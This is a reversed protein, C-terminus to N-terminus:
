DEHRRRERLLARHQEILPLLTRAADERDLAHRYEFAFRDPKLATVVGDAGSAYVAADCWGLLDPLDTAGLHSARVDRVQPAFRHVGALFTPLFDDFTAILAVKTDPALAALQGRTETSVTVRVPLIDLNPLAARAEALRHGLTLVVDADRVDATLAPQSLQTFTCAQVRDEPRLLGELEVAYARTAADLVGVLVVRVGV